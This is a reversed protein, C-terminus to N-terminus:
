DRLIVALYSPGGLRAMQRQIWAQRERVYPSPLLASYRRPNPLTAALLAAQAGTLEAPSRGFTLRSAEAVGFVNDGLEAVNLYVELIRRKSWLAEVLATGGAELGKRLWSRGEWLFLNKVVQQSITSAGRLRRGEESADLADGIADVDFGWHHPFKQDEAAVVALAAVPAIDQLPVWRYRVTEGALVRQVMISSTPPPVWRLVLVLLVPVVVAGLALWGLVRGLRGRRSRGKAM